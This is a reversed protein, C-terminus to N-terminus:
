ERFELNSPIGTLGSAEALWRKLHEFAAASRESENWSHHQYFIKWEAHEPCLGHSERPLEVRVGLINQCVACHVLGGFKLAWTSETVVRIPPNCHQVIKDILDEAEADITGPFLERLSLRSAYIADARSM